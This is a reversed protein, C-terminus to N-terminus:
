CSLMGGYEESDGADKMEGERRRRRRRRRNRKKRERVCMRLASSVSKGCKKPLLIM